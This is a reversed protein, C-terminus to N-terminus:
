ANNRWDMWDGRFVYFDEGGDDYQFPTDQVFRAYVDRLRFSGHGFSFWRARPFRLFAEDVVDTFVQSIERYVELGGPGTASGERMWRTEYWEGPYCIMGLNLDWDRAGENYWETVELRLTFGRTLPLESVIMDDGYEQDKQKTWKMNLPYCSLPGSRM